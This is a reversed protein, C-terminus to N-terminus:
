GLLAIGVVGGLVIAMPATWRSKIAWLASLAAVFIAATAWGVIATGALAIATAAVVGVVAATVGDLFRHTPRHDVIREFFSHGVLTFAFAPAFMGATMALAGTWGGALFGVFTSFIVLPAPLMGALGIGDIFQGDSLWRHTHVADARVFPIATYAGGFTLLGAKLGAILLAAAAASGNVVATEAASTADEGLAPSPPASGFSGWGTSDLFSDSARGPIVGVVQAIVVSVLLALAAGAVVPWRRAVAFALGGTLLIMAFHAGAVTAGMAVVAIAWLWPDRRVAHAGIRKAALAVLAAVVPKIGVFAAIIWPSGMGWAQYAWALGLMLAFGPLMFGLGALLAGVRGRAVFGFYCCLEHAEPGPLAQYVALVRNFREPSIWREREVLEGRIMAIQAFPGGWAHLGFGLFRLFLRAASLRPPVPPPYSFFHSPGPSSDRLILRDSRPLHVAAHHPQAPKPM